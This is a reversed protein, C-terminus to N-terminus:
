MGSATVDAWGGAGHMSRRELIASDVVVSGSVGRTSCAVELISTGIGVTAPTGTATAMRTDLLLALLGDM